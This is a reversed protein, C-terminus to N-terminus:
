AKLLPLVRDILQRTQEIIDDGGEAVPRLILKQIGVAEYARIQAVVTEADGVVNFLEAPRQFTKTFDAMYQDIFGNNSAELRFGFGAGYHDDPIHRGLAKVQAKITDVLVSVEDPTSFGALWGTGYKATRQIAAPSEGGIWLPLPQQVPKPNISVNTLSFFKGDYCVSDERWLREIIDLAENARFGLNQKPYANHYNKYAKSAGLGFAPLLRGESLYDISACAKATVLPDRIGVAAVSMGFKLRRTRAAIAAMTSICELVPEDGVLFDAQWVSDIGGSDCLELWQWFKAPEGFKFTDIGLGVSVAM